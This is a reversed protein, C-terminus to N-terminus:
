APEGVGVGVGVIIVVSSVPLIFNRLPPLEKDMTDIWQELESAFRGDADFTTKAVKHDNGSTRPTAM